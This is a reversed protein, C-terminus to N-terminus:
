SEKAWGERFRALVNSKECLSQSRGRQKIGLWRDGSASNCRSVMFDANAYLRQSVLASAPDVGGCLSGIKCLWTKEARHLMDISWMNRTVRELIIAWDAVSLMDWKNTSPAAM